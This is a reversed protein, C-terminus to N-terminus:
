GRAALYYGIAVGAATLFAPIVYKIFYEKLRQSRDEKKKMTDHNVAEESSLKAFALRLSSDAETSWKKHEKFDNEVTEVAVRNNEIDRIAQGVKGNTYRLQELAQDLKLNTDRQGIQLNRIGDRILQVTDDKAMAFVNM